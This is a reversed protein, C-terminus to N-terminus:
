PHVTELLEVILENLSEPLRRYGKHSQQKGGMLKSFAARCLNHTKCFRKMNRNRLIQGDPAIVTFEKGKRDAKRGEEFPTLETGEKYVRYGRYQSLKGLLLKCFLDRSLNYKRCFKAQNTGILLEGSPSMVKFEKKKSKYYSKAPKKPESNNPKAPKPIIQPECNEVTPGYYDLLYTVIQDFSSELGAEVFAKELLVGIQHYYDEIYKHRKGNVKAVNRVPQKNGKCLFTLNGLDAQSLNGAVAKGLIEKEDDFIHDKWKLGQYRPQDLLTEEGEDIRALITEGDNWTHVRLQEDRIINLLHFKATRQAYALFAFGKEPKFYLAAKYFMLLVEQIVDEIGYGPFFYRQSFKHAFLNATKIHTNFLALAEKTPEPWHTPVKRVKERSTYSKM